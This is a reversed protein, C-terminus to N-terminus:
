SQYLVFNRTNQNEESMSLKVLGLSADIVQGSISPLSPADLKNYSGQDSVTVKVRMQRKVM